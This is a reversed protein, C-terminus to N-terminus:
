CPMIEVSDNEDYLLIAPVLPKDIPIDKFSEGKDEDDIIFKLTQKEINMIIKIENKFQKLNSEKNRYNQPLDSYLKSNSCSFYWGLNKITKGYRINNLYGMLTKPELFIDSELPSVPQNIDMLFSAEQPYSEMININYNNNYIEFETEIQSIGVMINNSKTNLIKIKWAYEKSNELINKSLIRIWKSDKGSKTIINEMEGSLIYQQNEDTDLPCKSFEYNYYIDGFTKISKILININYKPFGYDVQYIKKSNFKKFNENMELFNKISNEINISLNIISNLKENKWDKDMSKCEEIFKKIKYPFAEYKRLIDEKVFLNNYKNDIKLLIEEERNNIENRINNFIKQINIKLEEKKKNIKECNNNLEDMFQNITEFLKELNIINEKFKKKKEEKIDEITCIDCDKHQGNGKQSIKAICALCCLKNHTKCFYELNYNHNDESCIGTFIDGNINESINLQPHNYLKLHNKQCKGCMYVRCEQCFSIAKIEQHGKASCKKSKKEEM